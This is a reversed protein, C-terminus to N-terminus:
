SERSVIIEDIFIWCPLGSGIHWIPCAKRSLAVVKIYRAKVQEFDVKFTETFVGSEKESAQNQLRALEDFEIGDDSISIVLEQPLWIWAYYQQLFDASISSFSSAEGLDIIAELDEGEFGLWNFHYDPLGRLGDTLAVAGGVPYKESFSTLLEVPKGMALNDTLSKDLYNEIISVYDSPSTGHEEIREIGYEEAKRAFEKLRTRMEERVVREGDVEKFYSLDENIDRLSLDLIAFELPLGATRVRKLYDPNDAVAQEAQEFLKDYVQILEPSLYGNIGDYPYGYIGLGQGSNILADLMTDIYESIFLAAPGYYGELFDKKVLELDVDPDWLIKAILYSRLEHFESWFGGSGQQFMLFANNEVFFRLNPQLVHLNPFPNVYNRFQVVYDWILINDTLKGWNIIDDRFSASRPDTPIAQSRNCEITCLVVNVNEAPKIGIPAARTYQYALTSITKEPFEAAVKNVFWIMSGSYGGYKTNIETCEACDCPYYTDNQSVSWFHAQPLEDMKLQLRRVLTDFVETNSLCLQGYPVRLGNTESFYEPHTDYFEEPPVLDDFTHVWMGWDKQNTGKWHLKHWDLYKQNSRIPFHLERFTIVPDQVDDIQSLSITSQEPILTAGPAYMRCGLYDELFSYVGYLVGKDLGGLIVLDQGSTKISFGDPGLEPIKGLIIKKQAGNSDNSIIPINVGSIKLLYEQLEQAAYQEISDAEPSIVIQYESQRQHVISLKGHQNCAIVILFLCLVAISKIARIM